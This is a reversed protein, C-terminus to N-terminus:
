KLGRKTRVEGKKGQLKVSDAKVVNCKRTNIYQRSEFNVFHFTLILTFVDRIIFLQLFLTKINKTHTIM